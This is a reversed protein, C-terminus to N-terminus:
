FDFDHSCLKYLEIGYYKKGITFIYVKNADGCAYSQSYGPCPVSASSAEVLDPDM